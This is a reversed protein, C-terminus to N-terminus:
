HHGAQRTAAALESLAQKAESIVSAWDGFSPQRFLRATPYWPSDNRETMWRWCTNYRNLVWVPKGIAGALHVVSTDVSIVLDLNSMLAATEEFDRLEATFDVVRPDGNLQAAAEEGVQLSLFEVDKVDLLPAIQAFRLSRMRDTAQAARHHKRPNGAWALGVRLATKGGLRDLWQRNKEQSSTLYPVTAPISSLTTGLLLPLSMLACHFDFPALLQGPTFVAAVGASRAILTQLPQPALVHVIAGREAVLHAFRIFQLADGLGQETYLLITKGVLSQQGDWETQPFAPKTEAGTCHWRYEYEQWGARYDGMALLAVSKNFHADAHVPQTALIADCCSIADDYRTQSCLVDSMNIRAVTFNGDASLAARYCALAKELQHQAQYSRGLNCYAAAHKPVLATVKGYCDIAKALDGEMELLTGLNFLSEVHAPQIALAAQYADVAEDPRGLSQLATGLNYHAELNSPAIALAHRLSEIAAMGNGQRLLASGLNAHVEQRDPALAAAVRYADVAEDIRDRSYLVHGLNFHADINRPEIAVVHRFAEAANDLQGLQVYANGLNHWTSTMAPDIAAAAQLSVVALDPQSLELRALGLNALIEARQPQVDL